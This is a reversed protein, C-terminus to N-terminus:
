KQRFVKLARDRSMKLDVAPDPYTEGPVIGAARLTLPDVQWPTHIFPDPLEALEPVFARIYNGEADFKRGQLVPNFIRFFPAADVGCGAVWQWSAANNAPDADVLTDHFWNLGHSWHVMLNKVLFSAVIMRVRNHMYGTRWLQRMGADIIPYGTLGQQWRRILEPDNQWPFNALNDKMAVSQMDPFDFLLTHSFERWALQRLFVEGDGELSAEGARHRVAHWVQRPSIEGFHLHPSLRSTRDLHPFDRMVAYGSLGDKLFGELRVKAGAEGPQWHKEMEQYWPISPLLNLGDVGIHALPFEPLPIEPVAEPAPVPSSRYNAKYFPTFVRYGAGDAKRTEHPELLLAGNFSRAELGASKLRRKIATDRQVSRPDYCRNWFVGTAGMEAIVQQLIHSADGRFCALRGDLQENLRILSRHLWWRSAGGRRYEGDAGEDLIFVPLIAKGTARAAILAPNDTLRLDQRFWVIISDQSKQM